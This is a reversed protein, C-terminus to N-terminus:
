HKPLLEDAGGAGGGRFYAARVVSQGENNKRNECLYNMGGQEASPDSTGHFTVPFCIGVTNLWM